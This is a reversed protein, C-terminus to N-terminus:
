CSQDSGPSGAIDNRLVDYTLWGQAPVIMLTEETKLPKM